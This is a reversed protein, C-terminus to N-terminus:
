CGPGCGLHFGALMERKWALSFLGKATLYSEMKLIPDREKWQREAEVGGHANLCYTKCDIVTAGQGRRARGIAEQAVRYVAVVDNGDVTIAPVGSAQAIACIGTADGLGECQGSDDMVVFVMPIENVGAFAVAEACVDQSGVGRCFTVVVSNSKALRSAMAVGAGILQTATTSAPAILVPGKEAHGIEPAGGTADEARLDMGMGAAVAELGMAFSSDKAHGKSLTVRCKLMLAYLQRLKENSIVGSVAPGGSAASKKKAASKMGVQEVTKEKAKAGM